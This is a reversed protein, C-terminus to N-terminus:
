SFDGKARGALEFEVGLGAFKNAAVLCVLQQGFVVSLGVPERGDLSKSLFLKPVNLPMCLIKKFLLFCATNHLEKLATFEREGMWRLM